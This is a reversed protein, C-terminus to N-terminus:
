RLCRAKTLRRPVAGSCPGCNLELHPFHYRNGCVSKTFLRKVEAVPLNKLLRRKWDRGRARQGLLLRARRGRFVAAGHLSSGRSDGLASRKPVSWRIVLGLRARELAQVPGKTVSALVKKSRRSRAQESVVAQKARASGEKPLKLLEQPIGRYSGRFSHDPRSSPSCPRACLPGSAGVVSRRITSGSWRASARRLTAARDTGLARRSPSLDLESEDEGDSFSITTRWTVTSSASWGRCSTFAAARAGVGRLAM